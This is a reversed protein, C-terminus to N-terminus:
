RADPEIGRLVRKLKMADVCFAFGDDAARGSRKKLDDARKGCQRAAISAREDASVPRLM